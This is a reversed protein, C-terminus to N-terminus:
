GRLRKDEKKAELYKIKRQIYEIEDSAHNITKTYALIMGYLRIIECSDSLSKDEQKYITNGYEDLDETKTDGHETYTTKM